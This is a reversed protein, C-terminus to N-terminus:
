CKWWSYPGVAEKRFSCHDLQLLREYYFTVFLVPAVGSRMVASVGSLVPAASATLVLEVIGHTM